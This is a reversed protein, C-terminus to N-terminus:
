TINKIQDLEVELKALGEVAHLKAVQPNLESEVNTLDILIAQFDYVCTQSNWKPLLAVHRFYLDMHSCLRESVVSLAQKAALLPAKQYSDLLQTNVCNELEESHMGDDYKLSM